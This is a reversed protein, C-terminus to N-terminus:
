RSERTAEELHRLHDLVQAEQLDEGDFPPEEEVARRRRVTIRNEEKVTAFEYIACLLQDPNFKPPLSWAKIFHQALIQALENRRAPSLEHRSSVYAALADITTTDPRFQPPIRERTRDKVNHVAPPRPSARQGELVVMTGAALDGLRQFRSGFLMALVGPFFPPFLDASRLVNRLMAQGANIALGSESVVRIGLAKKGLTQGNWFAEMLGGYGWVLAFGIFLLFGIGAGGLFALGIGLGILVAGLLLFDLLLALSRTFPGALRFDFAVNEPTSVLVTSDLPASAAALPVM